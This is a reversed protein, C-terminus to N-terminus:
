DMESVEAERGVAFASHVDACFPVLISTITRILTIIDTSRPAVSLGQDVGYRRIEDELREASARVNPAADAPKGNVEFAMVQMMRAVNRNFVLEAEAVNPPLEQHPKQLRYNAFTLQVLLLTRLLPDWKKIDDRIALKLQRSPGFEFLIADSQARMAEFGANIQDSLMRIRKIAEKRDHKLLQQTLEAFLELNSAFVARTEDLANRVWLRDFVLWMAILGLLVGFVRDRAIALSTQITFEQLNILYFALALQLGLYSLRPTSTAIWAAIATVLVFLLSFGVITELYPLVFVQSAMGFVFGGIIAGGLRLVQRQRSSGITSVATVLCTIMSTQLGPWDIATYTIYCVIAALTGRLAFQLHAPSSLADSAFLAPRADEDEPAHMFLDLTPKSGSLAQPILAVTREMASLFALDSPRENASLDIQPVLDGDLLHSRLKAINEALNSCRERGEVTLTAPQNTYAIRMSAALNVLSGVLAVAANMQAIFHENNGSRLLLRRLRSTGLGSYYSIAKQVHPSAPIGAGIDRLVDEVTKLRSEVGETLISTPHVKHFVYEVAVTIAAGIIVLYGLWLTDSVQQNVNAAHVDWIPIAAVIPFSFSIATVYDPIVRMVYFSLFLSGMIWLFHTLPDDVFIEVSLITYAMGITTAVAIRIGSRLTAAPSERSLALCYIAALFGNPLRFTDVLLMVITAAITMRAVMWARGPYPALENKLFGWFWIAAQDFTREPSTSTLAASQSAM